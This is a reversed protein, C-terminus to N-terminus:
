LLEGVINGVPDYLCVHMTAEGYDADFIGECQASACGLQTTNQWIVQTFDTFELNTSSLQVSDQIFMNVAHIISFNGTGAAINEGYPGLTGGTHKFQCASAWEQAKSALDTSWTLPAAYYTSRVVNHAHLYVTSPAVTHARSTSLSRHSNATVLNFLFSLFSCILSVRM